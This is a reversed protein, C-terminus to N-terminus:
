SGRLLPLLRDVTRILAAKTRVDHEPIRLVKWDERELEATVRRDRERNGDIKEIWFVETLGDSKKCTQCGHWFCGDVFIVIRKRTFIM